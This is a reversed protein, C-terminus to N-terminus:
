SFGLTLRGSPLLARNQTDVRRPSVPRPPTPDAVRERAGTLSDTATARSAAAAVSVSLEMRAAAESTEGGVRGAAESLGAAGAFAASRRRTKTPTTPNAARTKPRPPSQNTLRDRRCAFSRSASAESAVARSRGATVLTRAAGARTAGGLAPAEIIQGVQRPSYVLSDRKQLSSPLRSTGARSPASVRPGM